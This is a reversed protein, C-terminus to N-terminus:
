MCFSESIPTQVNRGHKSWNNGYIVMKVMLNEESNEPNRVKRVSYRVFTGDGNMTAMGIIGHFEVSGDRVPNESRMYAVPEVSIMVDRELSRNQEIETATLNKLKDLTESGTIKKFLISPGLHRKYSGNEHLHLLGATLTTKNSKADTEICEVAASKNQDLASVAPASGKEFVEKWSNLKQLNSDMEQKFENRFGPPVEAIKGGHRESKVESVVILTVLSLSFGINGNSM